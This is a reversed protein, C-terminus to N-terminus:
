IAEEHPMMTFIILSLSLDLQGLFQRLRNQTQSGQYTSQRIKYSDVRLTQM